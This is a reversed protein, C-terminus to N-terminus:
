SQKRLIIIIRNEEIGGFVLKWPITPVQLEPRPIGLLWIEDYTIEAPNAGVYRYLRIRVKAADVGIHPSEVEVEYLCFDDGSVRM